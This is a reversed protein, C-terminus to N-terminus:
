NIKASNKKVNKCSLPAMGIGWVSFFCFKICTLGFLIILALLFKISKILSISCYYLFPGNVKESLEFYFLM